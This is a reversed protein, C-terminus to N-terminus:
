LWVNKEIFRKIDNLQRSSLHYYPDTIRTAEKSFLEPKTYCKLSIKTLNLYNKQWFPASFTQCLIMMGMLMAPILRPWAGVSIQRSLINLTTGLVILTGFLTFYVYRASLAYEYSFTYRGLSILLFPVANSLLAWLTLRKEFSTGKIFILTICFILVLTGLMVAITTNIFYGGFIFYFPSVFAGVLWFYIFALGPNTIFLKDNFFTMAHLGAFIVYELIFCMFIINVMITFPLTKKLPVSPHMIIQYLPLLFIALIAYNHSHISLWTCIGILLLTMKSFSQTYSITLLLALLYFILCLIYCLYFSNWVIAQQVVSATFLFSLGFALTFNFHKKLFLYILFGTIGTALCNIIVLFGYKDGALKLLIYFILHFFPFFIEGNPMFLYNIFSNHAILNLETWDDWLFFLDNRWYFAIPVVLFLGLVIWNPYKININDSM